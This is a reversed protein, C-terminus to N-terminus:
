EHTQIVWRIWEVFNAVRTYVGPYYSYACGIGWSVIGQLEGNCMLPGGSDGQCSDKGGRWSGACIMNETVRYYYFYWCNPFYDVQVSRLVPSLSYSWLTTVGWGSVTCQTYWSLPPQDAQPLPALGVASTLVVPRDLKIMMIDSDFTRSYYNFHKILTAVRFVQETPEQEYLNHKGLAVQILQPRCYVCYMFIAPRWCHAASIVWQEHILTGGCFHQGFFRLSAQYSISYPEVEAGGIIRD